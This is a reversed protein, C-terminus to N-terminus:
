GARERAVFALLALLALAGVFGGAFLLRPVDDLVLRAHAVDALRVGRVDARAGVAPLLSRARARRLRDEVAASRCRRGEHAVLPALLSGTVIWVAFYVAARACSSGPVNLYARKHLVLEREDVNAFREPHVWPYLTGLGFCSRSSRAGRAAPLGGVIAETLRRVAVPWRARM